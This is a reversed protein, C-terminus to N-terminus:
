AIDPEELLRSITSSILNIDEPKRLFADVGARWADDECDQGALMIIAAGRWRAISRARRVLELGSLGPLDNDVIIVDYRAGSTLIKLATTGSVCADVEIGERALNDAILRAFPKDDEVHLM